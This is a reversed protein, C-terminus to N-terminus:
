GALLLVGCPCPGRRRRSIPVTQAAWARSQAGALFVATGQWVSVFSLPVPSSLHHNRRTGAESRRHVARQLIEGTSRRSNPRVLHGTHKRMAAPQFSSMKLLSTTQRREPCDAVRELVRRVSRQLGPRLATDWNGVRAGRRRQRDRKGRTGRRGHGRSCKRPDLKVKCSTVTIAVSSTMAIARMRKACQLKSSTRWFKECRCGVSNHPLRRIRTQRLMSTWHTKLENGDCVAISSVQEPLCFSLESMECRNSGDTVGGQSEQKM